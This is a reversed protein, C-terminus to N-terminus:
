EGTPPTAALAVSFGRALALETVRAVLALPAEKDAKIVVQRSKGRHADLRAGLQGPEVLADEFYLAAGAGGTIALVVPDQMAPLLSRSVPLEVAIGPHLLFSTSLLVYFLLLLIVNLAGTLVPVAGRVRYARRLRM